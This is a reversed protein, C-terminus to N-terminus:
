FLGHILAGAFIESAENYIARLFLMRLSCHAFMESTHPSSDNQTEFNTAASSWALRQVLLIESPYSRM